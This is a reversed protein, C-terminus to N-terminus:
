PLQTAEINFSFDSAAAQVGATGVVRVIWDGAVTLPAPFTFVVTTGLAITADPSTYNTRVGAPSLTSVTVASPGAPVNAANLFPTSIVPRTGNPYSIIPLEDTNM